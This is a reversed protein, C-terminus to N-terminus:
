PDGGLDRRGMTSFQWGPEPAPHVRRGARLQQRAAAQCEPGLALSAGARYCSLAKAPLDRGSINDRLAQEEAKAIFSALSALSPSLNLVYM